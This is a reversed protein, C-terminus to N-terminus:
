IRATSRLHPFPLSSIESKPSSAFIQRRCISMSSHMLLALPIASTVMVNCYTNWTPCPFQDPYRRAFRSVNLSRSLWVTTYQTGCALCSARSAVSRLPPHPGNRGVSASVLSIRCFHSPIHKSFFLPPRGSLTLCSPNWHRSPSTSVVVLFASLVLLVSVFSLFVVPFISFAISSLVTPVPLSTPVSLPHVPPPSSPTVSSLLSPFPTALATITM